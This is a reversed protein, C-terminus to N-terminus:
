DVDARRYRFTAALWGVLAIAPLVVLAAAASGASLSVEIDPATALISSAWGVITFRASGEALHAIANEWLLV